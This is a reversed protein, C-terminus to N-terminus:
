EPVEERIVAQLRMMEECLSPTAKFGGYRIRLFHTTFVRFLSTNVELTYQTPTKYPQWDIQGGDSLMKLTQLYILRVAERYAKREMAQRIQASFNIGYISDEEVSYAIASRQNRGFQRPIIRWFFYILLGICAIGLVFWIWRGNIQYFDNHFVSRILQSFWSAARDSLDSDAQVLERAYNYHEDARWANLATTDVTLTDIATGTM